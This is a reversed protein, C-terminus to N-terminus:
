IGRGAARISYAALDILFKKFVQFVKQKNIERLAFQYGQGHSELYYRMRSVSMRTLHLAEAIQAESFNENLLIAVALRKAVMLRETKTLLSELFASIEETKTLHGLVLDLNGLLNNETKASLKRRSVQPMDITDYVLRHYM